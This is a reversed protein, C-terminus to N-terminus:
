TPDVLRWVARRLLRAGQVLLLDHPSRVFFAVGSDPSLAARSAGCTWNGAMRRGSQRSVLHHRRCPSLRPCPVGERANSSCLGASDRSRHLRVDPSLQDDSSALALTSLSSLDDRDHRLTVYTVFLIALGAVGALASSEVGLTAGIVFVDLYGRETLSLSRAVEIPGLLMRVPSTHTWSAAFVTLAGHTLSAALLASRGSRSRVFLLSLPLAITYKFWSIALPAWVRFRRRSLEVVSVLLFCLSFLAHQGNAIGVRWPTGMLFLSTLLLKTSKETDAPLLRFLCLLIVGTFLLNSLAWLAKPRPGIGSLTLGCSSSARPQTTPVNLFYSRRVTLLIFTPLTRTPINYCHEVRDGNPTRAERREFCRALGALKGDISSVLAFEDSLLRWGSLVLGACLTSKGSGSTGVLLVAQGDREITAAHIMLYNNATCFICRNLGWELHPLASRVPFDFQSVGGEAFAARRSFM